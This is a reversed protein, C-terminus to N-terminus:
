PKPSYGVGKKWELKGPGYKKILNMIELFSQGEGSTLYLRWGSKIPEGTSYYNIGM